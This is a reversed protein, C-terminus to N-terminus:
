PCQAVHSPDKVHHCMLAVDQEDDADAGDDDDDCLPLVDNYADNPHDHRVYPDKPMM